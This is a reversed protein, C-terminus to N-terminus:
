LIASPRGNIPFHYCSASSEFLEKRIKEDEFESYMKIM